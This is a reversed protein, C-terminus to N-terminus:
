RRLEKRAAMTSKRSTRGTLLGKAYISLNEITIDKNKMKFILLEDILTQYSNKADHHTSSTKVKEVNYVYSAPTEIITQHLLSSM